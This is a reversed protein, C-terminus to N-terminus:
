GGFVSVRVIDVAFSAVLLVACFDGLLIVLIACPVIDVGAAYLVGASVGACIVAAVACSLIVLFALM